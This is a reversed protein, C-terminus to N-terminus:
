LRSLAFAARRCSIIPASHACTESCLFGGSTLPPTVTNGTQLPGKSFSTRVQLLNMGLPCVLMVFVLELTTHHGFGRDILSALSSLPRQLGIVQVRLPTLGGASPLGLRQRCKNFVKIGTNHQAQSCATSPHCPMALGQNCSMSSCPDPQSKTQLVDPAQMCPCILPAQEGCLWMRAAGPHRLDDVGGAALWLAEM